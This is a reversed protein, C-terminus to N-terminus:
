LSNNDTKQKAEFMEDMTKKVRELGPLILEDWMDQDRDVHIVNVHKEKGDNYCEVLHAKEQDLLQLYTQIQINEYERVESFLRRTRNKIEVITGDAIQGDIKGGVQFDKVEKRFMTNTVNITEGTMEKYIDHVKVESRTGYNTNLKSQAYNTLILKDEPKLDMQNIKTNLVVTENFAETSTQTKTSTDKIEDMLNGVVQKNKNVVKYADLIFVPAKPADMGRKRAHKNWCDTIAEEADKYPNRGILSAIESATFTITTM